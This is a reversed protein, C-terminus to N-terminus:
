KEPTKSTLGSLLSSSQTKRAGLIEIGTLHGEVDFDLNIEHWGIEAGNLAYTCDHVARDGKGRLKIYAADAEPDYSIEM